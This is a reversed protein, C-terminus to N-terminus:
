MVELSIKYTSGNTLGAINLININKGDYFWNAATVANAIATNVKGSLQVQVLSVGSPQISLPNAFVLPTTTGATVTTTYISRQLNTFGIGGNVLNYIALTFLNLNSLFKQFIPGLASYDGFDFRWVPPLNSNAM